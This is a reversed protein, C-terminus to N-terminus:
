NSITRSNNSADALSQAIDDVTRRLGFTQYATEVAMEGDSFRLAVRPHQFPPRLIQVAKLDALRFSSGPQFIIQEEDLQVAKTGGALLRLASPWLAYIFWLLAVVLLVTTVWDNVYRQRFDASDIAWNTVPIALVFIPLTLALIARWRSYSVITKM